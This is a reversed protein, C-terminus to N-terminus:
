YKEWDRKTEEFVHDDVVRFNDFSTRGKRECCMDHLRDLIDGLEENTIPQVGNIEALLDHYMELADSRSLMRTSKIGM